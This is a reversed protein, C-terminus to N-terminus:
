GSAATDRASFVIRDGKPAWSASIVTLDPRTLPRALRGNANTVWLSEPKGPQFEVFSLSRDDPSWSPDEADGRGRTLIHGGTGNPRIVSVAFRLNPLQSVYAIWHGDHSWSPEIDSHAAHVLRTTRGTSLAYVFIDWNDPEVERAFALRSADPSWAPYDLPQRGAAVLPSTRGSKLDLSAISQGTTVYAITKDDPSWAPRSGVADTFERRHHGAADITIIDGSCDDCVGYVFAIRRADPSWTPDLAFAYPDNGTTIRHSVSAFLGQVYLDSHETDARAVMYASGCIAYVLGLAFALVVVRV